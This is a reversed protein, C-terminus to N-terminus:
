CKGATEERAMGELYRGGTEKKYSGAVRRGEQLKGTSDYRDSDSRALAADHRGTADLSKAHFYRIKPHDVERRARDFYALAAAHDAKNQAAIGLDTLRRALDADGQEVALTADPLGAFMLLLCATVAPVFRKM